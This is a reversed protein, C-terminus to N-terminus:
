MWGSSIKLPTTSVMTGHTKKSLCLDTISVVTGHYKPKSLGLRFVCVKNEQMKTPNHKNLYVVAYEFIM